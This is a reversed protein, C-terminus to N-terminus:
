PTLVIQINQQMGANGQLSPLLGKAQKNNIPVYQIKGNPGPQALLFKAMQPIENFQQNVPVYRVTENPGSQTM